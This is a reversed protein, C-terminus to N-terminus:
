PDLGKESLLEGEVECNGAYRFAYAEGKLFRQTAMSVMYYIDRTPSLQNIPCM